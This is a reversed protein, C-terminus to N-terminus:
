KEYKKAWWLLVFGPSLLITYGILKRPDFLSLKQWLGDWGGNSYAQFFSLFIITLGFVIWMKALIILM